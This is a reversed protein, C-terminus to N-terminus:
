LTQVWEMASLRIQKPISRGMWYEAGHENSELWTGRVLRPENRRKKLRCSVRYINYGISIPSHNCHNQRFIVVLDLYTSVVLYGQELMQEITTRNPRLEDRDMWLVTADLPDRKPPDRQVDSLPRGTIEFVELARIVRM